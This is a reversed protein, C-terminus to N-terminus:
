SQLALSFHCVLFRALRTESLPWLPGFWSRCRGLSGIPSGRRQRYGFRTYTLFGQLRWSGIRQPKLLVEHFGFEAGRFGWCCRPRRPGNVRLVICALLLWCRWGYEDYSRAHKLFFHDRGLIIHDVISLILCMLISTLRPWCSVFFFTKRKQM